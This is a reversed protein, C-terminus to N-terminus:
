QIEPACLLQASYKLAVNRSLHPNTGTICNAFSLICNGIINACVSGRRVEGLDRFPAGGRGSVVRLTMPAQRNRLRCLRTLLIYWVGLMSTIEVM